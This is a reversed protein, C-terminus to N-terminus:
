LHMCPCTAYTGFERALFRAIAHSQAIIVGDVELVPLQGFPLGPPFFFIGILVNTSQFFFRTFNKIFKM